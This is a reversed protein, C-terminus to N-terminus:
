DFREYPDRPRTPPSGSPPNPDTATQPGSQHALSHERRTRRGRVMQARPPSPVLTVTEHPGISALELRASEYGELRLEIAGQEGAALVMTYPAIGLLTGDRWIEAGPPVSDVVVQRTSPLGGALDSPAAPEPAPLTGAGFPPANPSVAVQQPLGVVPELPISEPQPSAEGSGASAVVFAAVALALLVVGGGIALPLAPLKRWRDVLGARRGSARIAKEAVVDDVCEALAREFEEASGYRHAPHKEMAKLVVRELSPPIPRDPAAQRPPDPKERIHKAMVVVADDDVFPPRGTLLQYLLVGVSYLDSRPDLAKGQAQEPSMYRPTGFVTGAQTELQDIKGENRFAKAIGFDLVKVVARPHGEIRALYINDPKLDRHIIGKSHAEALSRLIEQVIGIADLVDLAGERDMRATLLEGELLEMALFLHGTAPDEGFDFVRVTNPHLLLSMAKAERHFRAVTERETVLERKLVKLAVQRSLGVQDARYVTGMGGTGIREVIRFRGALTTGILPDPHEAAFREADVLPTGDRPCTSQYGRTPYATKCIPCIRMLASRAPELGPFTLM